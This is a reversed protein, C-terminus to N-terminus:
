SSSKHSELLRIAEPTLVRTIEWGHASLNVTFDSLGSAAEKLSTQLQEDSCHHYRQLIAAQLCLQLCAMADANEHLVAKFGTADKIMIYPCNKYLEQLQKLRELTPAIESLLVNVKLTVPSRNFISIMPPTRMTKDQLHEVALTCARSLSLRAFPVSRSAFYASITHM